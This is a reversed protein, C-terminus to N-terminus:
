SSSELTDFSASDLSGGQQSKVWARYQDCIQCYREYQNTTPVTQKKFGMPMMQPQQKKEPKKEVVGKSQLYKLGLAALSGIIEATDASLAPSQTPKNTTSVTPQMEMDNNGGAGGTIKLLNQIQNQTLSGGNKFNLYGNYLTQIRNLTEQGYKETLQKLYPEYKLIMDYQQNLQDIGGYKKVLSIINKFEIKDM